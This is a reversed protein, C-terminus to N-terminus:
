REAMGELWERVCPREALRLLRVVPEPMTRDGNEWHRWTRAEVGVLRAFQGQTMGLAARHTRIETPTM